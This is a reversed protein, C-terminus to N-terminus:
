YTIDWIRILTHTQQTGCRAIIPDFQAKNVVALFGLQLKVLGKPTYTCIYNASTRPNNCAFQNALLDITTM